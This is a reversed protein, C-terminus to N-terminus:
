VLGRATPKVVVDLKSDFMAVVATNVKETDGNLRKWRKQCAGTELLGPNVPVSNM